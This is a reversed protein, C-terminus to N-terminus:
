RLRRLEDRGIWYAIALAPLALLDTPDVVIHAPRVVSIAHAVLTAAAPWLKTVAFTIGTAAICAVLRRHTLYPDRRRATFLALGIVASLLVPAFILGAVDSLKGTIAGPWHPKLVWDNIVLLLVAALAIPHLAEGVPSAPKEGRVAGRRARRLRAM